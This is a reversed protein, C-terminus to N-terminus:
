RKVKARWLRVAEDRLPHEVEVGRGLALWLSEAGYGGVTTLQRGFPTAMRWVKRVDPEWTRWDRGMCPQCLLTSVPGTCRPCDCPPEAAASRTEPAPPAAQTTATPPQCPEVHHAGPLRVVYGCFGAETRVASPKGNTVFAVRSPEVRAGDASVWVVWDGVQPVWPTLAKAYVIAITGTPSKVDAGGCLVRTVRWPTRSSETVYWRGVVLETPKAQASTPKPAEPVYEEVREAELQMRTSEDDLRHVLVKDGIAFRKAQPTERARPDEPADAFRPEVHCYGPKPVPHGGYGDPERVMAVGHRIETVVTPTAVDLSPDHHWVPEGVEPVWPECASAFAWGPNGDFCVTTDRLSRVRSVRTDGTVRVWMGVKVDEIKM